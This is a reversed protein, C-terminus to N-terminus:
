KRESLRFFFWLSTCTAVFALLLGHLTSLIGQVMLVVALCGLVWSTCARGLTTRPTVRRQLLVAGRWLLVLLVFVDRYPSM